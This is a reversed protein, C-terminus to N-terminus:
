LGKLKLPFKGGMQGWKVFRKQLRYFGYGGVLGVGIAAPSKGASGVNLLKSKEDKTTQRDFSSLATGVVISTGAKSGFDIIKGARETAAALKGAKMAGAIKVLRGAGFGFALGAGLAASAKLLPVGLTRPRSVVDRKTARLAAVEKGVVGKRAPDGKERIPIVRGHRRIFRM